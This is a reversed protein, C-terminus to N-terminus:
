KKRKAYSKIEKRSGQDKGSDNCMMRKQRHLMRGRWEVKKTGVSETCANMENPAFVCCVFLCKLFFLVFM